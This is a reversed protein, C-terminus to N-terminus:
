KKKSNQQQKRAQEAQRSAFFQTSKKAALQNKYSSKDSIKGMVMGGIAETEITAHILLETPPSTFQSHWIVFFAIFVFFMSM